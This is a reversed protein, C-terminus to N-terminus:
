CRAVTVATVPEDSKRTGGHAGPERAGSAFTDLASVAAMLHVRSVSDRARRAESLIATRAAAIATPDRSALAVALQQIIVSMRRREGRYRVRGVVRLWVRRFFM